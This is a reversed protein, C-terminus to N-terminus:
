DIRCSEQRFENWGWGDSGIQECTDEPTFEPSDALPPCSQRTVPDYGWGANYIAASYDCSDRATATVECVGGNWGIGDGDHDVCGGNARLPVSEDRLYCHSFQQITYIDTGSRRFTDHIFIYGHETRVSIANFNALSGANLQGNGFISWGRIFLHGTVDNFNETQEAAPIADQEVFTIDYTQRSYPQNVGSPRRSFNDCRVTKGALDSRAWYGSEPTYDVASLVLPSSEGDFMYNSIRCAQQGDWGWGQANISHCDRAQILAVPLPIEPLRSDAQVGGYPLCVTLALAKYLNRM